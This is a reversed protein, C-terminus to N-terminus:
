TLQYLWDTVSLLRWHTHHKITIFAFDFIYHLYWAHVPYVASVRNKVTLWVLFGSICSLSSISTSLFFSHQFSQSINVVETQSRLTCQLFVNSLSLGWFEHSHVKGTWDDTYYLTSDTDGSHKKPAVLVQLNMMMTSQGSKVTNDATLLKFHTATM